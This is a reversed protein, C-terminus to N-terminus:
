IRLINLSMLMICLENIYYITIHIVTTNINTYRSYWVGANYHLGIYRSFSTVENEIGIHLRYRLLPFYCRHM